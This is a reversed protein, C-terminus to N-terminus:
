VSEYLCEDLYIEPDLEEGKQFVCRNIITLMPCKLPKNLLVDDDTNVGIRDYDKEYFLTKGGNITKIQSKIEFLVEEYKETSDLILYKEDYKEELYASASYIILYLPNVCPINEYDFDCDCNCNCNNLKKITYYGIYYNDFDKHSKEDIKLLNSHFNRIDIIDDFYYYTQNKINLEKKWKYTWYITTQHKCDYRLFMMFTVM